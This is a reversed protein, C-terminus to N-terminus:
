PPERDNGAAQPETWAKATKLFNAMLRQSVERTNAYTEMHFQAAYIPADSTKLCQHVTHAGDGNTVLLKWGKPLHNIQGIHSEHILFREAVGELVPDDAVIRMQYEGREGISKTYDGCPAPGTHGIHSYIPSKPNQPDRCRPCDWPKDAGTEELIALVQAGGCAGWMPLRRSKLVAEVGKWPERSCQCWEQFSGSLFACLPRPEVAVFEPNFDGHWICQAPVTEWGQCQRALDLFPAAIQESAPEELSSVGVIWDPFAIQAQTQDYFEVERVAPAPGHSLNIVLRLYRTTVQRELRHIRFMRTERRVVTELLPRWTEGDDSVQWTYNRPAGSLVDAQDGHIQLIAGVQQPRQFDFQLHGAAQDGKWLSGGSTSFRDGDVVGECSTGEATSSASVRPGGEDALAIGALWLCGIAGLWAGSQPFGHRQM